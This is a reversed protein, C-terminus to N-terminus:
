ETITTKTITVGEKLNAGCNFLDDAILEPDERYGDWREDMELEITVKM